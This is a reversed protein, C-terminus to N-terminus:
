RKWRKGLVATKMGVLGKNQPIGLRVGFEACDQGRRRVIALYKDPTLLVLVRCRRSTAASPCLNEIEGKVGRGHVHNCPSRMLTSTEKGTRRRVAVDADELETVVVPSVLDEMSMAHTDIRNAPCGRCRRATQDAGVGSRTLLPSKNGTTTVISQLDPIVLVDKKCSGAM